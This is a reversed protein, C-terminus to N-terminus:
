LNVEVRRGEEASVYAAYAQAREQSHGCVAMVECREPGLQRYGPLHLNAANGYGVLALRLSPM